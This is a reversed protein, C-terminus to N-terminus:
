RWDMGKKVSLDEERELPQGHSFTDSLFKRAPAANLESRGRPVKGREWRRKSNLARNKVARTLVAGRQPLSERRVQTEVGV